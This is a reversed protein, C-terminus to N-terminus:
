CVTMGCFFGMTSALVFRIIAEQNSSWIKRRRKLFALQSEPAVRMALTSPITDMARVALVKPGDSKPTRTMTVVYVDM